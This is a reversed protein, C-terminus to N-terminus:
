HDILRIHRRRKAEHGKVHFAPKMRSQVDVHMEHLYEKLLKKM